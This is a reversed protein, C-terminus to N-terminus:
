TEPNSGQWLLQFGTIVMSEAAEYNLINYRINAEFDKM